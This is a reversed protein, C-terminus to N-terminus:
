KNLMLVRLNSSRTSVKRRKITKIRPFYFKLVKKFLLPSEKNPHVLLEQKVAINHIEQSEQSAEVRQTKGKRRIKKPIELQQKFIEVTYQHNLIVLSLLTRLRKSHITIKNM